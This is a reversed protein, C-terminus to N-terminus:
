PIPRCTAKANKFYISETKTKTKPGITCRSGEQWAYHPVLHYYYNLRSKQGSAVLDGKMGRVLYLDDCRVSCWDVLRGCYGLAAILETWPVAMDPFPCCGCEVRLWRDKERWQMPRPSEVIGVTIYM